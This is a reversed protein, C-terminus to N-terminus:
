FKPISDCAHPDDSRATKFNCLLGRRCYHDCLTGNSYSKTYFTYASSMLPGSLDNIMRQILNDWDTPFLSSMQYTQRAEYEKFIITRNYANTATLNMIMTYHDLVWYSSNAYVGDM